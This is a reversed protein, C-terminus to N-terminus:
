EGSLYRRGKQEHFSVALRIKSTAHLITRSSTGLNCRLIGPGLVVAM